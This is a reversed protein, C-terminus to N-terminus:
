FCHAATLTAPPEVQVEQRRDGSSAVAQAHSASKGIRGPEVICSYCAQCSPLRVCRINNPYWYLGWRHGLFEQVGDLMKPGNELIRLIYGLGLQLCRSAARYYVIYGSVPQVIRNAPPEILEFM